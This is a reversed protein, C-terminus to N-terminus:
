KVYVKKGNQIYLGKAAANVKRGQLDYIAGDNAKAKSVENIAVPDGVILQGDKITFPASTPTVPEGSDKSFFGYLGETLKVEYDGDPLTSGNFTFTGAEGQQSKFKAGDMMSVFLKTNQSAQFQEVPYQKKGLAEGKIFYAEEDEDYNFNPNRYLTEGDEEYTESQDLAEPLQFYVEWGACDDILDQTMTVPIAKLDSTEGVAITLSNQASMTTAVLAAAISLLIKRM